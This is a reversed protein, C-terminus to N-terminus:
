GGGQQRNKYILYALGGILALPLIPLGKRRVKRRKIPNKRGYVTRAPLKHGTLEILASYVPLTTRLSRRRAIDELVAIVKDTGLVPRLQGMDSETVMGKLMRAMESMPLKPNKWVKDLVKKAGVFGAGLGLGTIASAGLTELLPNVLRFKGEKACKRCVEVIRQGYKVLVPPERKPTLKKACFYCTTM